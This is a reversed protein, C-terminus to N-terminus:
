TWGDNQILEFIDGIIVETRELDGILEFIYLQIIEPNSSIGFHLNLFLVFIAWINKTFTLLKSEEDLPIQHFRIVADM